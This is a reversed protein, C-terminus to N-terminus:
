NIVADATNQIFLVTKQRWFDKGYTTNKGKKPWLKGTLHYLMGRTGLKLSKKPICAKEAKEYRDYFVNWQKGTDDPCSEFNKEWDFALTDRM